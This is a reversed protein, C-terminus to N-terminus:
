EGESGGLEKAIAYLRQVYSRIESSATDLAPIAVISQDATPLVVQAESEVVELRDHLWHVGDFEAGSADSLLAQAESVLFAPEIWAALMRLAIELASAPPLREQVHERERVQVRGAGVALSIESALEDAGIGRLKELLEDYATRAEDDSLM